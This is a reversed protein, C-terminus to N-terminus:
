ASSPMRSVSSHSSNLRTSKRDSDFSNSNELQDDDSGDSENKETSMDSMDSDIPTGDNDSFSRVTRKLDESNSTQSQPDGEQEEQEKEKMEEKCYEFLKEALKVVDDWTQLNRMDEVYEEEKNKFSVRSNFEGLKFYLNLRDILLFDDLEQISKNKIGFIDM